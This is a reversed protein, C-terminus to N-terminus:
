SLLGPQLEARKEHKHKSVYRSSLAALRQEGLKSSVSHATNKENMKYQTKTCLREQSQSNLFLEEQMAQRAAASFCRKKLWKYDNTVEVVNVGTHIDLDSMLLKRAQASELTCLPCQCNDRLWTFPYLSQGGDEWEVEMMREEDLARVHRVSHHALPLSASGLTHQGRLHMSTLCSPLPGAARGPRRCARLAQCAM